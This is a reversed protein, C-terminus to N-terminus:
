YNWRWQCNFTNAKPIPSDYFECASGYGSVLTAHTMTVQGYGVAAQYVSGYGNQTQVRAYATTTVGAFGGAISPQNGSLYWQNANGSGSKYFIYSYGASAAQPVALGLVAGMCIAICLNRIARPTMRMNPLYYEGSDVTM